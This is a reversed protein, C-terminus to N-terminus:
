HYSADIACSHFGYLVPKRKIPFYNTPPPSEEAIMKEVETEEQFLDGPAGDIFCLRRCGFCNKLMTGIVLHSIGDAIPVWNEGPPSVVQCVRALIPIALLPKSHGSIQFFCDKRSINVVQLPHILSVLQYACYEGVGLKIPLVIVLEELELEVSLGRGVSSVGSLVVTAVTPEKVVATLFQYLDRFTDPSTEVSIDIGPACLSGGASIGGRAVLFVGGM